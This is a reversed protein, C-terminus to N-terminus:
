LVYQCLSAFLRKSYTRVHEITFYNLAMKSTPRHDPLRLFNRLSCPHVQQVRSHYADFLRHNNCFCYGSSGCCLKYADQSPYSQRPAGCGSKHVNKTQFAKWVFSQSPAFQNTQQFKLRTTKRWKTCPWMFVSRSYIIFPPFPSRHLNIVPHNTGLRALQEFSSDLLFYSEHHITMPRRHFSVSHNTDPRLKSNWFCDISNFTSMGEFSLCCLRYKSQFIQVLLNQFFYQFILNNFQVRM